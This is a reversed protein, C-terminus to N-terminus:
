KPPWNYQIARDLLQNLRLAQKFDKIVSQSLNPSTFDKISIVKYVVFRKLMIWKIDKHDASFGRPVRISTEAKYFGNKFRSKFQPDSFLKHFPESDKYIAERIMRTQRSSPQWLGGAIIVSEKENSFIGFFLHPHSEFRSKSPRSAIM